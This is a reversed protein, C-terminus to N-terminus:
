TRTTSRALPSTASFAGIGSLPHRASSGFGRPPTRPAFPTDASPSRSTTALESRSNTKSGAQDSAPSIVCGSIPATWSTSATSSPTQTVQEAQSRSSLTSQCPSGTSVQLQRESGDSTDARPKSESGGRSGSRSWRSGRAACCPTWLTTWKFATVREGSPRSTSNPRTRAGSSTFCRSRLAPRALASARTPIERGSGVFGVWTGALM